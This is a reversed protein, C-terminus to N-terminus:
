ASQAMPLTHSLRSCARVASVPSSINYQYGVCRRELFSALLKEGRQSGGAQRDPCPTSNALSMESPPNAFGTLGDPTALSAPSPTPEQRMLQSWAKDWLDRDQLRRVVGFQQWERFEIGQEQCWGVVDRDRDFTWQGGTEQHCFVRQIGYASNLRELAQKVPGTMVLLDAGLHRLQRRLDTLSEEIFEWQRASTDPLQWYEPEVVYLPIVPEGLTAAAALPDHDRTRLDRKFWVVTTM